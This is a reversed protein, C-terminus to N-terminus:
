QTDTPVRLWIRDLQLFILHTYQFAKCSCWQWIDEGDNLWFFFFFYFDFSGSRILTFVWLKVFLTFKCSHMHVQRGQGSPPPIGTIINSVKIEKSALASHCSIIIKIYYSENRRHRLHVSRFESLNQNWFLWSVNKVESISTM